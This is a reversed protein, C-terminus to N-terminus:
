KKLGEKAIKKQVKRIDSKMIGRVLWPMWRNLRDIWRGSIGPIIYFKKKKLGKFYDHTVRDVTFLSATESVADSELPRIKKEEEHGPTDTDPPCLVNVDIDFSMLEMRLTEALNNVGSKSAGYASYGFVGMLGAISSVFTLVGKSKKLYPLAAQSAFWAGKLNIDITSNFNRADSKEFYDPIYIGSAYFLFDVGGFKALESEFKKQFTECEGCDISVTDVNGGYANTAKIELKAQELRDESRAGILVECGRKYFGKAIALGIGSSGGLIVAKKGHFNQM